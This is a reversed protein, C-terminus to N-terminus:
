SQHPPARSAFLRKDRRKETCYNLQYNKKRKPGSRCEKSKSEFILTGEAFNLVDVTEACTPASKTQDSHKELLLAQNQTPIETLLTKWETKHNPVGPICMKM